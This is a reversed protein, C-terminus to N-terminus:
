SGSFYRDKLYAMYGPCPEDVTELREFLEQYSMPAFELDQQAIEAFLDVEEGHVEAIESPWEYYLYLLRFGMPGCANKLGLAHKILQAAGLYEFQVSGDSIASALERVNDFGDWLGAKEFYSDRFDNHAPSYVETFKSEIALPIGGPKDIVVDLHPPIGRLGTPYQVEFRIRDAYRDAAFLSSLAAVDAGRWADFVNVALASSSRLSAMSGPVDSTGLESGAGEGFEMTADPDLPLFLNDGVSRCMNPDEYSIDHRDAWDVQREIIESLANQKDTM